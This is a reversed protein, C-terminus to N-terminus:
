TLKYMIYYKKRRLILEDNVLKVLLYYLQSQKLNFHRKLYEFSFAKDPNEKLFNLIQQRGFHLRDIKELEERTLKDKTKIMKEGNLLFTKEFIIFDIKNSSFVFNFYYLM